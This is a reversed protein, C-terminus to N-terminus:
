MTFLFFSFKSTIKLWYMIRKKHFNTYICFLYNLEYNKKGKM